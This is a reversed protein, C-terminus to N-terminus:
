HSHEPVPNEGKKLVFESYLLYAGTAVVKEGEEVGSIIEVQDFTEKGTTVVRPEFKGKQTEVWVHTGRQDRIVADVPLSLGAATSAGPLLVIAQLGPQWQNNPNPITGRVQMLQSGAQLAPLIFQITMTQPQDEYGSVVVQVKQGVKINNAESPYVDAEVWLQGYAELKMITGGEPTYQGETISLEAVIGSSPAFYTVYPDTKRRSVLTRLQGETQGYLLLKHRAAQLMQGFRRDEPFASAQAAMVLYEQQLTALEESYIQYLPQGKRVPVGTEKVYLREVRGAVRSSIYNTAEPNTALRGNLRTVSAVSGAGVTVTTVNALAQQNASLTLSEDTNNKDFPVLDMGCIPCTGPKNQVIQPHMPCTYTQEKTAAVTTTKKDECAALGMSIALLALTMNKLFTKRNM